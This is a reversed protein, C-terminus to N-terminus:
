RPKQPGHWSLAISLGARHDGLLMDRASASIGFGPGIELISLGATIQPLAGLARDGFRVTGLSIGPEVYITTNPRFRPDKEALPSKSTPRYSVSVPAGLGASFSRIRSTRSRVRATGLDATWGVALTPSNTAAGSRESLIRGVANVGYLHGVVCPALNRLQDDRCNANVVGATLGFRLLAPRQALPAPMDVGIAYVTGGPVEGGFGVLVHVGIGTVEKAITALSPATLRGAPSRIRAVYASEHGSQSLVTTASSAVCITALLVSSCSFLRM